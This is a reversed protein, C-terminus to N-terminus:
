TLAWTQVWVETNIKEELHINEKTCYQNLRWYGWHEFYAVANSFTSSWDGRQIAEGGVEEPTPAKKWRRKKSQMNNRKHYKFSYFKCIGSEGIWGFCVASRMLM